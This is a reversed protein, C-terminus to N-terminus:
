AANRPAYMIMVVGVLCIAAGALDWRDPRFGDVLMEWALSRRRLDRRVRRPDPRLQTRSSPPSSATPAWPLSEAPSGVPRPTRAM